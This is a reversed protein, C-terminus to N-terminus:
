ARFIICNLYPVKKINLPILFLSKNRMHETFLRKRNAHVRTSKKESNAKGRTEFYEGDDVVLNLNQLIDLDGVAFDDFVAVTTMEQCDIFLLM